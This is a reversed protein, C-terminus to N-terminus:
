PPAALLPITLPSRPPESAIPSPPPPRSPLPPPPRPPLPPPPRPPSRPPPAPTPRPPPAPPEAPGPRAPPPEPPARARAALTGDMFAALDADSARKDPPLAEELAALMEEMTAFRDSPSKAVAKAIVADLELPYGPVLLSPPVAPTKDCIRRLTAYDNDGRFPH